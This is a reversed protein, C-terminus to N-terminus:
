HGVDDFLGLMAVALQHPASECPSHGADLVILNGGLREAFNQHAALPWVDHSGAVVLIPIGAASVAPAVDPTHKMLDFIDIVSDVRTKAFRATVFVARDQPARHVNHRLVWVFLHGLAVPPLMVSFPGLVKFSRLAQGVAPTTSLLTLSRVLEPRAGAVAAAVTGAFSYGLVHAPPGDALLATLDHEFLEMTYRGGPAPGADCSDYQGAMDFSEVRYGSAALLPMVRVFDEKSGTMGSVLVVRDGGAPGLTIRALPGSPAAFVDSEAGDPLASWDIPGLLADNEAAVGLRASLDDDSGVTM